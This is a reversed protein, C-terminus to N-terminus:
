KRLAKVQTYVPRVTWPTMELALALANVTKNGADYATLARELLDDKQAPLDETVPAQQERRARAFDLRSERQSYKRRQLEDYASPRAYRPAVPLDDTHRERTAYSTSPLSETHKEALEQVDPMDYDELLARIDEVTTYPISIIKAHRLPGGDLIAYGVSDRGSIAPLLEEIAKSEIGFYQAHNERSQFAYKTNIIDRASSGSEGFLSAPMTQGAIVCRMKFKRGEAILSLLTDTALERDAKRQKLRLILANFEDVIYFLERTKKWQRMADPDGAKARKRIALRREREAQIWVCDAVIDEVDELINFYEGLDAAVDGHLDWGRVIAQRKVAQAVHFTLCCTKGSGPVGILAINVSQKLADAFVFGEGDFGLIDSQPTILHCMQAFAPSRAPLHNQQSPPVLDDQAAFEFRRAPQTDKSQEQPQADGRTSKGNLLRYGLSHGDKSPKEDHSVDKEPEPPQKAKQIAGAAVYAAAGAALGVIVGPGSFHALAPETIALVAGAALIKQGQQKDM